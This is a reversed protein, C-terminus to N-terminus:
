PSLRGQRALRVANNLRTIEEIRHDPDIEVVGGEIETNAPLVLRVEATQPHLDAAEPIWSLNGTAVVEGARNHFVVKTAPSGVSGLGHVRVRMERGHVRVDEPGLGLDPRKWYPKGPRTLKLTLVTTARPAFAFGLSTSREFTNTRTALDVDANDDGNTDIGQGIEWLGPDINWGTMTARVPRPELNYAIVKFGTPTADPILIAVSQDNAPADFKWSVVHGPFTGNRVLAVGGLRARQLEVSPVGVRDIWLSGETNIYDFLECWEIQEAYLQELYQKNGTLQWAFHPRKSIRKDHSPARGRGDSPRADVFGGTQGSLIRPGWERRIGLVDLANANVAMIGSPGLDFVPDLYKRDGTWKWATWFLPWPFYGRTATFDRDDKFRIATPLGSHGKGDPKRHALLGDALDLLVKKATPNGNYDVLLQGPQLVLYSYAKVCGWPDDEAM